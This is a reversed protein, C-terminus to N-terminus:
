PRGHARLRRRLLDALQGHLDDRNSATVEILDVDARAKPRDTVPHRRMHATAVVARGSDFLSEVAHAFVASTLEMGGIDDIVVVQAARDLVPLAVREFAEVDVGYRGVRVPSSFDVSALMARTGM